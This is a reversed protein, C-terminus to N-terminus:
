SPATFVISSWNTAQLPANAPRRPPVVIAVGWDAAYAPAVMVPENRVHCRVPAPKATTAIHVEWGAPPSRM